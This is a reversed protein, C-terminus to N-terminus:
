GVLKKVLGSRLSEVGATNVSTMAFFWRGRPLYEIVYRALGPNNLVISRNLSNVNRGYYIRYGALDTLVSGDANETPPTWSLTAAGEGVQEVVIDFAALVATTSGDSVSIGINSYPGVDAPGPTGALRGTMPDFSAWAPKRRITFKLVDGDPDSATPTFEYAEDPFVDVPPAGTITPPRNSQQSKGGGSKGGGSGGGLCGSFIWALSVTVWLLAKQM